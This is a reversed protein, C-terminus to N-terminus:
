RLPRFGVTRRARARARVRVRCAACPPTPGACRTSSARVRGGGGRELFRGRELDEEVAAVSQGTAAGVRECFRRRERAHLEAWQAVNRVHAEHRTTPECLSFRTSPMRPATPVSRWWASPARRRGAGPVARAGACGAARDRGDVHAGSGPGGRWLRAAPHGSGDGDADLTMLEASVRTVSRDDLPGHLLVVRQDLLRSRLTESLPERRAPARPAGPPPPLWPWAEGRDGM